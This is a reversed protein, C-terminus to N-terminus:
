LCFRISQHSSEKDFVLCCIHSDRTEPDTAGFRDRLMKSINIKYITGYAETELEYDKYPNFHGNTKDKLLVWIKSFPIIGNDHEKFLDVVVELIDRELSNAKRNNKEDILIELSREIRKQSKTDFFFRYFLNVCNMIEAKWVRKSPNLRM